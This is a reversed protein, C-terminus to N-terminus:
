AATTEAAAAAFRRPRYQYLVLDQWAQAFSSQTSPSQGQLDLLLYSRELKGRNFILPSIYIACAERDPIQRWLVLQYTLGEYSRFKPFQKQKVVLEM